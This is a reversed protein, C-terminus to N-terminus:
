LSESCEYLKTYHISYSTIVVHVDKTRCSEKRFPLINRYWCSLSCLIGANSQLPHQRFSFQVANLLFRSNLHPSPLRIKKLSEQGGTKPTYYNSINVCPTILPYPQTKNLSVRLLKTYCVNYSTIRSYLNDHIETVTMIQSSVDELSSVFVPDQFYLKKSNILSTLLTLNNKVRHHTEKLITERQTALSALKERQFFTIVSIFYM